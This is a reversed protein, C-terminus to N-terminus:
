PLLLRQQWHAPLATWYEQVLLLLDKGELLFVQQHFQSRAARAQDTFTSTTVFMAEDAHHINKAGLFDRMESASVKHGAHYRKCQVIFPRGFRDRALLDAGQDGTGGVRQVDTYQGSAELLDGIFDEFDGPSLRLLDDLALQRSDPISAVPVLSVREKASGKVDESVAQRGRRSLWIGCAGIVLVTLAIGLLVLLGPPIHILTWVVLALLLIVLLFWLMGSSNEAARSSNSKKKM